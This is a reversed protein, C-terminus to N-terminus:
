ELNVISFHSSFNMLVKNTMGKFMPIQKLWNASAELNQISFKQLIAFYKNKEVVAFHTNQLTKASLTNISNGLFEAFCGGDTLITSSSSSEILVEGKLIIYFYSSEEPKYLNEGKEKCSYELNECFDYAATEKFDESIDSLIKLKFILLKLYDTMSENRLNKPLKLYSIVPKYDLGRVISVRRYTQYEPKETM